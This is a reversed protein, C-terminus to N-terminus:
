GDIVELLARWNRRNGLIRVVVLRDGEISYIILHEAVPHIRMPPSFEDHERALAPMAVLTEITRILNSIYFFAHGVVGRSRRWRCPDAGPRSSRKWRRFCNASIRSSRAREPKM